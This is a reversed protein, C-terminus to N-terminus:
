TARLAESVSVSGARSAPVFGAGVGITVAIALCIALQSLPVNLALDPDGYASAFVERATVAATFGLWAGAGVGAISLTTAEILFMRQIDAKTAGFSRRVGIETTRQAVAFVMVNALGLAGVLLSVSAVIALFVRVGAITRETADVDFEQAVPRLRRPGGTAELAQAMAASAAEVLQRSDAWLAVSTAQVSARSLDDTFIRWPVMATTEGRTESRVVGVVTFPGSVGGQLQISRGVAAQPTLGLSAAVHNSIVVVPLGKIEADEGFFGGALMNVRRIDTTKAGVGIVDAEVSAGQGLSVRAPQGAVVASISTGKFRSGVSLVAEYEAVTLVSTSEGESASEFIVTNARGTLAEVRNQLHQRTLDGGITLLVLSATGVTIAAITLLSRVKQTTIETLTIRVLGALPISARAAPWSSGAQGKRSNKM